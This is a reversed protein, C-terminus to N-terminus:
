RLWREGRDHAILEEVDEAEDAARQLGRGWVFGATGGAVLGPFAFFLTGESITRELIFGLLCPVLFGALAGALGYVLPDECELKRLIFSTPLGIVVMGIAVCITGIIWAILGVFGAATVALLLEDVVLPFFLMAMYCGATALGGWLIASALGDRNDEM